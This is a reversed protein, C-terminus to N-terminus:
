SVGLLGLLTVIRDDGQYPPRGALRRLCQKVPRVCTPAGAIIPNALAAAFPIPDIGEAAEVLALIREAESVLREPALHSLGTLYAGLAFPANEEAVNQELLKVVENELHAVGGAYLGAFGTWRISLADPDSDLARLHAEVVVREAFSLQRAHDTAATLISAALSWAVHTRDTPNRPLDQLWRVRAEYAILFFAESNLQLLAQLALDPIAAPGLWGLCSPEDRQRLAREEDTIPRTAIDALCQELEPSSIQHPDKAPDQRMAPFHDMISLANVVTGLRLDFLTKEFRFPDLLDAESQLPRPPPSAARLARLGPIRADNSMSDLQLTLWQFLRYTLWLQDREPPKTPGALNEVTQACLRLIGAEAAAFTDPDPARKVSELVAILREPLRERLDIEGEPLRVFPKHAAASRLFLISSALQAAPLDDPTDLRRLAFGVEHAYSEPEQNMQWVAFTWPLTGPVASAQRMLEFADDRKEWCGGDGVRGTVLSLLDEELPLAGPPESLMERLDDLSGPFAGFIGKPDGGCWRFTRIWAPDERVLRWPALVTMKAYDLKVQETEPHDILKHLLGYARGDHRGQWLALSPAVREIARPGARLLIAEPPVSITLPIEDTSVSYPMSWWQENGIIGSAQEALSRAGSVLLEEFNIKYTRKSQQSFVEITTVKLPRNVWMSSAIQLSQMEVGAMMVTNDEPLIGGIGRLMPQWQLDSAGGDELMKFCAHRVARAHMGRRHMDMGAWTRLYMWLKTSPAESVASDLAATSPPISSLHVRIANTGLMRVTSELLADREDAGHREARGLLAEAFLRMEADAWDAACFASWIAPAYVAVGLVTFFDRPHKLPGPNAEIDDLVKAAALLDLVGNPRAALIVQLARQQATALTALVAAEDGPTVEVMFRGLVEAGRPAKVPLPAEVVVASREEKTGFLKLHLRSCAVARGPPEQQALAAVVGRLAEKGPGAFLCIEELVGFWGGEFRPARAWLEVAKRLVTAQDGPTFTLNDRVARALTQWGPEFSMRGLHEFLARVIRDFAEEGGGGPARLVIHLRLLLVEEWAPAGLYKIFFGTDPGASDCLYVWAALYEQFSLHLFALKDNGRNVLLGTQDGLYDLFHDMEERAEALNLGPRSRRSRALHRRTLCELADLSGILGRADEGEVVDNRQQVFFALHALYDKQTAVHLGLKEFPHPDSRPGEGRRAEQWTRLLMDICLEYLEGREQPLRGLSQHLFAMLTLLLPNAALRRVGGTRLVAERLSATLEDRERPNSQLQIAYWREIFTSVQGDDLRGIHLEDFEASPLEVDRTYGYIRSTIWFASAPYAAQFARIARAIRHRATERGVEDLGDILVVAEGNRLASEFFAQHAHTLGLDSRANLELYELFSLGPSAQQMRAFDRLSIFLPIKRGDPAFGDLSARGAHLLVLFALLTSKGSGPDGLVVTSRGGAVVSALALTESANRAPQLRLPVFIDALPIRLGADRERKVQTPLGLTRITEHVVAVRARYEDALTSFATPESPAPTSVM